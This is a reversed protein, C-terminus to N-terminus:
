IGRPLDSSLPVQGLSMSSTIVKAVHERLVATAARSAFLKPRVCVCSSMTLAMMCMMVAHSIGPAVHGIRLSSPEHRHTDERAFHSRRDLGCPYSSRRDLGRPYSVSSRSHMATPSITSPGSLATLAARVALADTLAPRIALADTLAARFRQLVNTLWPLPPRQRKLRSSITHATYLFLLDQSAM